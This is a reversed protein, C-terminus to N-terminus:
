WQGNVMGSGVMSNSGEGHIKFSIGGPLEQMLAIIAAYSLTGVCFIIEQPLLAAVSKAFGPKPPVPIINRSPHRQKAIISTVRNVEHPAGVICTTIRSIRSVQLGSRVRFINRLASFTARLWITIQVIIIFRWLRSGHYHKRVFISMAKYFLLVYKFTEKKTSQGKYHIISTEALYYNKYGAQQLRYSLDIDEGYMFFQEDFGGLQDLVQKPALLFAGSLVDVEHNQTEALHALYYRAFRKSQPLLATLGSLKYFSTKLSPFARKSEPLFRGNGDLMRVGCAGCQVHAEAFRLVKELCDEPLITDPNLFLIFKGSAQRLGQNNARAYGINKRNGTFRFDPFQRELYEVSGDASANDIIIIEAAINAIAIQLSCLCQELFYKVNYSVIIVSLQM